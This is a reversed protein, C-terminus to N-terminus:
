CFPRDDYRAGYRWHPRQGRVRAPSAIPAGAPLHTAFDKVSWSGVGNNQRLEPSDGEFVHIDLKSAAGGALRYVKSKAAPLQSNKKILQSFGLEGNRMAAVGLGFACVNVVGISNLESCVEELLSVQLIENQSAYIGAHIAAGRAVVQDPDLSDDPIKGSLRKLMQGVMPMKTAGGVLLVRDIDNWGFGPQELAEGTQRLMLGTQTQTEALLDRTMEEFSSQQLEATLEHGAFTFELLATPFESLQVKAAEAKNLLADRNKRAVRADNATLPNIGFQRQFQQAVFDM